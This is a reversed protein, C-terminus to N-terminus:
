TRAHVRRADSAPAERKAQNFWGRTKKAIDKHLWEISAANAHREVKTVSCMPVEAAIKQLQTELAVDRSTPPRSYLSVFLYFRREEQENPTPDEFGTVSVMRAQADIADIADITVPSSFEVRLERALRARNLVDFGAAHLGNEIAIEDAPGLPRSCDLDINLDPKLGEGSSACGCVGACVFLSIGFVSLRRM